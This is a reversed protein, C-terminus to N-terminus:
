DPTGDSSGTSSSPNAAGGVPTQQIEDGGKIPEYGELARIENGTIWGGQRGLRYANWRTQIDARLFGQEDFEVEWDPEPFLDIDIELGQEFREMWPMLGHKLFRMNQQEPTEGRVQEGGDLLPAPVGLMRAIDEVSFRKSEIFQADQMTIPMHDLEWGGWLVAPRGANAPGAHRAEYSMRIEARQEPTTPGPNKLVSGASADNALYRGEFRQRGLENGLGNRHAQVVSVGVYPNELLIGPIHIIQDKGVTQEVPGHERHRIDFTASSGEYKPTVCAPNIPYLYQVKGKPTKIKWLYANGRLMSTFTYSWVSFASADPNPRHLVSYQSADAVPSRNRGHGRFLTLPLAAATESILRVGRMFAPLGAAATFSVREGSHSVTTGWVSPRPIPLSSDFLGYLEHRAGDEGRVIV